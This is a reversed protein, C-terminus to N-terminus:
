SIDGLNAPQTEEEAAPVVSSEVRSGAATASSSAEGGVAPASQQEQAEQAQSESLSIAMALQLEEDGAQGNFYQQLQAEERAAKRVADQEKEYALYEQYSMRDLKAASSARRKPTATKKSASSAQSGESKQVEDPAEAPTTEQQNVPVTRERSPPAQHIIPMTSSRTVPGLEKLRASRRVITELENENESDTSNSADSGVEDEASENDAQGAYSSRRPRKRKPKGAPKGPRKGAALEPHRAFYEAKAVEYSKKLEAAEEAHPKKADEALGKWEASLAKTQETVNGALEPKEELLGVRRAKAFCFFASLPRKPPPSSPAPQGQAAAAGAASARRAKKSPRPGLRSEAERAEIAAQAEPTSKPVCVCRFEAGADSSCDHGLLFQPTDSPRMALAGYIFTADDNGVKHVKCWSKSLGIPPWRYGHLSKVFSCVLLAFLSFHIFLRRVSYLLEEAVSLRGGHHHGVRTKWLTRCCDAHRAFCQSTWQKKMLKAFTMDARMKVRTEDPGDLGQALVIATIQGATPATSADPAGTSSAAPAPAALAAAAASGQPPASDASPSSAAPLPAEVAAPSTSSSAPTATAGTSLSGAAAAINKLRLAEEEYPQKQEPTANKWEFQLTRQQNARHGALEPQEIILAARRANCFLVYATPTKKTAEGGEGAVSQRRRKGGHGNSQSARLPDETSEQAQLFSRPVAEITREVGPTWGKNGPTEEAKLPVNECLFAADELPVGHHGCWRSMMKSFPTSMKMKFALTVSGGDGDAVVKVEVTPEATGAPPDAQTAPVTDDTSSTKEDTVSPPAAATEPSPTAVAVQIAAPATDAAEAAEATEAAPPDENPEANLILPSDASSKCGLGLATDTPKVAKKNHLFRADTLTMGHYSTWAAMVKELPSGLKLKYTVVTVGESDTAHVQITIKEEGAPGQSAPVTDSSGATAAAQSIVPRAAKGPAAPLAEATATSAAEAPRGSRPSARLVLKKQDPAVISGPAESPQLERSDDELKFCVDKLDVNNEKCWSLMMKEFKMTARMKINTVHAGDAGEAIVQVEIPESSRSKGTATTPAEKKIAPALEAANAPPPEAAAATTRSAEATSVAKEDRPMATILLVGRAATWSHTGPTDAPKLEIGNQLEFQVEEVPVGYQESWAGMMKEFPTSLKMKFDQTAQGDEGEAVVQVSIKEDAPPSGADSAMPAAQTEADAPSAKDAAAEKPVANIIMTGRSVTWGASAPTDTEALDAGHLQFSVQEAPISFAACWAHMMKQFPTSLKMKFDQAVPEGGTDEDQALVQVSIKESASDAGAGAEASGGAPTAEAAQRSPEQQPAAAAAEERAAPQAGPAPQVAEERPMVDVKVPTEKVSWGLDAPTDSPALPRGNVQFQVDEFAIQFQKCWAHMMKELPTALKMKYDQVTQGEEDTAVVQVSVKPEASAGTAATTADSSPADAPAAAAASPMEGEERPVAHVNLEPQQGLKWGISAPTDAVLLERGNLLFRVEALSLGHHQTWANMMKEFPSSPKMKFSVVDSGDGDEAHVNVTLKEEAAAAPMEQMHSESKTPSAPAPTAVPAAAGESTQDPTAGSPQVPPPPRPLAQIELVGKETSWGLTLPTADTALETGDIKFVVNERPVSYQKCWAKVMKEFPAGLKMKFDQTTDGDPGSAIVRVAVKEDAGKAEGSPARNAGAAADSKQTEEAAPVAETAAQKPGAVSAAAESPADRPLADLRLVTSASGPKWGLSSPTGAASLEQGDFMFLVDSVSLGHHKTWANIVKEFPSNMKMKFPIVSEGEDDAAHVEITIKEEADPGEVPAAPAQAPQVMDPPAAAAAAAAAAKAEGTEDVTSAPEAVAAPAAAQSADEMDIPVARMVLDGRALTWGCGEPTDAAAVEKSLSAQSAEAPDALFFRVEDPPVDYHQCWAKMMKGFPTSLRMKFDLIQEGAGDEAMVKVAVKEDAPAPAAAQQQTPPPEAKVEAGDPAVAAAAVAAAVAAEASVESRRALSSASPVAKLILAGDPGPWQPRCSEPTDRPRMERGAHEFRVESRPVGHHRCWEQMVGEFSTTPLMQFDIAVPGDDDEALVEVRVKESQEESALSSGRGNALTSASPRAVEPQEEKVAPPGPAAALPREAGCMECVSNIEKTQFTCKGCVWLATAAQSTPRQAECAACIPADQPNELTCAACVWPSDQAQVSSAAPAAVPAATASAQGSAADTAAGRPMARLIIPESIPPTACGLSELTDEVLLEVGPRTQLEFQAAELGLDQHKCWARMLKRLPASPVLKFDVVSNGDTSDAVVRVELKDTPGLAHRITQATAQGPPPKAAVGPEDKVAPASSATDSSEAPLGAAPQTEAAAAAADTSQEHEEAEEAPAAALKVAAGSIAKAALGKASPTDQPALCAGGLADGADDLLRFVVEKRDVGQMKCWAEMVKEFPSSVKIKFELVSPPGEDPHAIVQVLVKGDGPALAPPAAPRAPEPLTAAPVPKMAPPATSSSSGGSTTSGSSPVAAAATSRVAQVQAVIELAEGGGTGLVAPTDSPYLRRGGLLEFTVQFAELGRQKCWAEMMKGFASSPRMKFEAPDQGPSDAAMVRLLVKEDGTSSRSMAAGSAMAASADANPRLSATVTVCSRPAWGRLEASDEPRLEEAAAPSQFSPASTTAEALTFCLSAEPFGYRQCWAAFVKRLPARMKAWVSFGEQAPRNGAAQLLAADARIVVQVREAQGDATGDGAM